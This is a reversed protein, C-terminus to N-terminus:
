HLQLIYLGDTVTFYFTEPTCCFCVDQLHNVLRFGPRCTTHLPPIKHYSLFLLNPKQWSEPFYFFHLFQRTSGKDESILCKNRKKPREHQFLIKKICNRCNAAKYVFFLLRSAIVHLIPFGGRALKHFVFYLPATNNM